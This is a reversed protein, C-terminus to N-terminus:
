ETITKAMSLPVGVRVEVAARLMLTRSSFSSFGTKVWSLYSCFTDSSAERLVVMTCTIAVSASMEGAKRMM